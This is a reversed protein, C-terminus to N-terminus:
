PVVNGRCDIVRDETVVFAVPVDFTGTEVLEVVQVEFAPAVTHADPRLLPLFRDYFGGGYGLRNGAADFAVGPVVVLDVAEPAMPRLCEARPEMIGWTGPALDEPYRDLRSVVLRRSAVETKPVAVTKGQGLAAEVLADTAVESRFNLYLMVVRALRWVPMALIREQIARSKVAAEAPNL